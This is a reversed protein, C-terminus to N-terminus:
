PMLDRTYRDLWHWVLVLVAVVLVGGLVWLLTETDCWEGFEPADDFM